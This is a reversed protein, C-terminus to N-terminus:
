YFLNSVQLFRKSFLARDSFCVLAWSPRFDYQVFVYDATGRIFLNLQFAIVISVSSMLQQMPELFYWSVVQFHYLSELLM